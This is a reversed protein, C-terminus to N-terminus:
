AQIVCYGAGLSLLIYDKCVTAHYIVIFCSLQLSAFLTLLFFTLFTSMEQHNILETNVSWMSGLWEAIFITLGTNM